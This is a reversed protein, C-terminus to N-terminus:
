TNTGRQQVIVKIGVPQVDVSSLSYRKPLVKELLREKESELRNKLLMVQTHQREM